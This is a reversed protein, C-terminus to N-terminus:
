MKKGYPSWSSIKNNRFGRPAGEKPNEEEDTAEQWRELIWKPWTPPNWEDHVRSQEDEETGLNMNGLEGGVEIERLLSVAASKWLGGETMWMLVDPIDQYDMFGAGKSTHKFGRALIKKDIEADLFGCGEEKLFPVLAHWWVRGKLLAEFAAVLKYVPIASPTRQNPLAQKVQERVFSLVQKPEHIDQTESYLLGSAWGDADDPHKMMESILDNLNVTRAPDIKMIDEVHQAVKALVQQSMSDKRNGDFSSMACSCIYKPVSDDFFNTVKEVIPSWQFLQDAGKVIMGAIQDFNERYIAKYTLYAKPMSRQVQSSKGSAEAKSPGKASVSEVPPDAAAIGNFDLLQLRMNHERLMIDTLADTEEYIRWELADDM